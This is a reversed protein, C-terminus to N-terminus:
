ETDEEDTENHNELEPLLQEAARTKSYEQTEFDFRLWGMEVLNRLIGKARLLNFAKVMGDEDDFLEPQKQLLYSMLLHNGSESQEDDDLLELGFELLQESNVFDELSRGMAENEKFSTVL